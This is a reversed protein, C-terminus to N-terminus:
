IKQFLMENRRFKIKTLFNEAIIIEDRGQSLSLNREFDTIIEDRGASLLIKECFRFNVEERDFNYIIVERNNTTRFEPLSTIVITLM